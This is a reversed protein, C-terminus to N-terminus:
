KPDVCHSLPDFRKNQLKLLRFQDKSGVNFFFCICHYVDIIKASWPFYFIYSYGLLKLATDQCISYLLFLHFTEWYPTPFSSFGLPMRQAHVHVQACTYRWSVTIIILKKFTIFSIYIHIYIHINLAYIYSNTSLCMNMFDVFGDLSYVYMGGGNNGKVGKINNILLLNCNCLVTNNVIPM